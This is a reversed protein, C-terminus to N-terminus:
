EAKRLKKEDKLMCCDKMHLTTEVAVMRYELQHMQTSINELKKWIAGLVVVLIPIGIGLIWKFIEISNNFNNTLSEIILKTNEDM